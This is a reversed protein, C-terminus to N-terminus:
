WEEHTIIEVAAKVSRSFPKDPGFEIEINHRLIQKISPNNEQSYREILQSIHDIAAKRQEMLEARNLDLQSIMFEARFCGPKQKVMTGLFVFSEEPDEFYPNIFPVVENFVNSKKTNCFQCGLGLNNWEFTLSPYLSKPRFHEIHPFAVSGIVGECYMCKGHTERVLAERVQQHNYRDKVHKPIDEDSNVYGMLETTWSDANQILILPKPGKTLKRM